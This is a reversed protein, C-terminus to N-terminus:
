QINHPSEPRSQQQAAPLFAQQVSQQQPQEQRPKQAYTASAIKARM